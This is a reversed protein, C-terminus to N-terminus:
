FGHGVEGGDPLVSAINSLYFSFDLRNSGQNRTRISYLCQSVGGIVALGDSFFDVLSKNWEERLRIFSPFGCLIIRLGTVVTVLDM